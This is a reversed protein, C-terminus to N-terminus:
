EVVAKLEIRYGFPDDVYVAPAKGTAGLPAESEDAISVDAATLTEKISAIDAEVIVAIHNYNDGTPPEFTETPWLHIVHAPALRVDFFSGDDDRYAGLREIEFGLRDSYFAVADEVGDTPIRLNVHDITQVDM